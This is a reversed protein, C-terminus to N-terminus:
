KEVARTRLAAPRDGQFPHGQYTYRLLWSKRGLRNVLIRLGAVETDSYEVERSAADAPCPPLADLLKKNFKFQRKM